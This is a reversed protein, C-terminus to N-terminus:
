ISTARVFKDFRAFNGLHRAPQGDYSLDLPSENVGDKDDMWKLLSTANVPATLMAVKEYGANKNWWVSGENTDINFRMARLFWNHNLPLQQGSHDVGSARRVLENSFFNDLNSTVITRGRARRIAINKAVFESFQFDPYSLSFPVNIVRVCINDLHNVHLVSSVSKVAPIVVEDVLSARGPDHGWDVLLIEGGQHTLFLSLQALLIGLSVRARTYIGIYDDNRGAFIFSVATELDSFSEGCPSPLYPLRRSPFSAHDEHFHHPNNSNKYILFFPFNLVTSICVLLIVVSAFFRMRRGSTGLRKSM